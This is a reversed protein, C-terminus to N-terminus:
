IVTPELQKMMQFTDKQEPKQITLPTLLSPNDDIELTRRRQIGVLCEDIPPSTAQLPQQNLEGKDRKLKLVPAQSHGCKHAVRHVLFKM